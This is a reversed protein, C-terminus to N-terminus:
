PILAEARKYVEEPLPSGRRESAEIHVATITCTSVGEGSLTEKMTHRFTISKPEVELVETVIEVVDGPHLERRYTLHMEVAGMGGRKERFYPGDMGIHAFFQWTATDYKAVYYAVNMHGVQDCEWPYVSGVYTKLMREVRERSLFVGAVQLVKIGHPPV